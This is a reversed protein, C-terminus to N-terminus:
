AVRLIMVANVVAQLRDRDEALELWDLGGCGVELLDTKIHPFLIGVLHLLPKNCRTPM